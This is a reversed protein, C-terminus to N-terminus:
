GSRSSRSKLMLVGPCFIEAVDRYLKFVVMRAAMTCCKTGTEFLESWKRLMSCEFMYYVYYKNASPMPVCM